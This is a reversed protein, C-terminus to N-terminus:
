RRRRARRHVGAGGVSERGADYHVVYLNNGGATAGHEAGDGLVGNAVFYVYSGDESAEIVGQVAATEGISPDVTLDTLKGALPEGAGSTVEFVYLDEGAEAGRNVATSSSTLREPSTFFVRSDDSSATRYRSRGQESPEPMGQAADVPVTEGAIVEGGALTTQGHTMDRMYLHGQKLAQEARAKPRGSWARVTVRSRMGSM